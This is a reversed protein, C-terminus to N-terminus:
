ADAPSICKEWMGAGQAEESWGELRTEGFRLLVRCRCGLKLGFMHAQEVRAAGVLGTGRMTVCSGFVLLFFVVIIRMIRLQRRGWDWAGIGYM